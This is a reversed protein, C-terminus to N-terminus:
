SDSKRKEGRIDGLTGETRSRPHVRPSQPPSIMGLKDLSWEGVRTLVNLAFQVGRILCCARLEFWDHLDSYTSIDNYRVRKGM